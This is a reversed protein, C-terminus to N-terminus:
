AATSAEAPKPKRTYKAKVRLLADIAAIRERTKATTAKLEKALRARENELAVRAEDAAKKAEAFATTPDVLEM